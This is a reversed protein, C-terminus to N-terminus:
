QCKVMNLVVVKKNSDYSGSKQESVGTVSHPDCEGRPNKTLTSYAFRYELNSDDFVYSKNFANLLHLFSKEGEGRAEDPEAPIAGLESPQNLVDAPQLVSHSESKIM